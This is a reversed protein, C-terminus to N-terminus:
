SRAIQWNSSSYILGKLLGKVVPFVTRVPAGQFYETTLIDVTKRKVYDSNTLDPQLTGSTLERLAAECQAHKIRLLIVTSEVLFGDEDYCGGRPWSMRQDYRTKYGKWNLSNLYQGAYLISRDKAEDTAADWTSNNRDEFYSDAFDVDIYTNANSVYSGDEVTLAM